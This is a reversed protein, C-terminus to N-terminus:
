TTKPATPPMAQVFRLSRGVWERLVTPRTHWDTPLVVYERMPRGAMSEVTAGGKEIVTERDPEPLRLLLQQGHIGMFMNGHVFAADQGFM